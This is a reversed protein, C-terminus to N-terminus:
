EKDKEEFPLELQDLDITFSESDKMKKIQFQVGAAVTLQGKKANLKLDIKVDMSNAFNRMGQEILGKNKKLLNTILQGGTEMIEDNLIPKEEPPKMKKSAMIKEGRINQNGIIAPEIVPGPELRGGTKIRSIARM